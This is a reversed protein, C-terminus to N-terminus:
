AKKLLFVLIMGVLIINSVLGVFNLIAGNFIAFLFANVLFAVKLARENDRFRFVAWTYELNALIPLYGVIGLNNFVLGLAVGSLLLIWELVKSQINRIAALNRLISVANQVAGSYGKLVIASCGYFVQSLTQVLLVSKATKRSSSVSDSIMALLSFLNGLILDM